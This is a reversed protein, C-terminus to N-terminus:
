LLLRSLPPPGGPRSRCCCGGAGSHLLLPQLLAAPTTLAPAQNRLPPVILQGPPMGLLPLPLWSHLLLEPLLLPLLLLSAPRRHLAHVQALRLLLLLLHPPPALHVV